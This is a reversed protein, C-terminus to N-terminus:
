AHPLVLRTGQEVTRLTNTVQLIGGSGDKIVTTNPCGGEEAAQYNVRVATPRVSSGTRDVAALDSWRVTVSPADCDAFVESWVLPRVLCPDLADSGPGPLLDRITVSGGSGLDTVEARWAGEIDPSRFVRFRYPHGPQWPYALTNPDDPFGSLLSTTGPLVSGGRDSSAYGGWNVARHDPYRRNWQLGTHGGAWVRDGSMFDVQLAWFYLADVHPPELVELVASVEAFGTLGAPGDDRGSRGSGDRRGAPMEWILHFSSAGTASRPPGADRPGGGVMSRLMKSWWSM